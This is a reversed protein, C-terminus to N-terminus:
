WILGVTTLGHGKSTHRPLGHLHEADVFSSQDGVEEFHHITVKEKKVPISPRLMHSRHGSTPLSSLETSVKSGRPGWDSRSGM